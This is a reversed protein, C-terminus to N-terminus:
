PHWQLYCRGGRRSYSLRTATQPSGGSETQCVSAYVSQNRHSGTRMPLDKTIKECTEIRHVIFDLYNENKNDIFLSILQRSNKLGREAISLPTKSNQGLFNINASSYFFIDIADHLFRSIYARSFCHYPCDPLDPNHREESTRHWSPGNLIERM